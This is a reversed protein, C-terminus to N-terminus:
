SRRQNADERSKCGVSIAKAPLCVIMEGAGIKNRVCLLTVKPTSIQSSTHVGWGGLVRRAKDPASTMKLREALLSRM